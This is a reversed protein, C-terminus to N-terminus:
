HKIVCIRVGSQKQFGHQFENLDRIEGLDYVCFLACEYASLYAPIDASMEEICKSISGGEKILKVEIALRMGPFVFDPIFEKGSFKIKGSERDYDVAKQYGRGVFLTEITNQVDIERDPRQFIAKRLNAALLDQIQSISASLGIDYASLISSLILTDAYITDFISKQVPWVTDMAGKLNDVDYMNVSNDGSLNVYSGALQNYAKAYNKYAGWKAHDPTTGSMITEMARRLADARISLQKLATTREKTM